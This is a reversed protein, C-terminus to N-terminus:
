EQGKKIKARHIKTIDFPRKVRKIYCRTTPSSEIFEIEDIPMKLRILLEPLWENKSSDDHKDSKWVTLNTIEQMWKVPEGQRFLSFDVRRIFFEIM